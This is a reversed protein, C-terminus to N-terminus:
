VHARGIENRFDTLATREAAPDVLIVDGSIAGHAIRARRLALLQRYLDDLAADGVDAAAAGSLPAGVPLRSVLLADDSPGATGAAVIDPVTVGAQGARMTLFGEHEVQQLRTLTLSSGSDRYFLFRGVKTLLKADAADRGYVSIALEGPAAPGTETAQYKAVGWAQSRFLM